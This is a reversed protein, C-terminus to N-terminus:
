GANQLSWLEKILKQKQQRIDFLLKEKQYVPDNQTYSVLSVDSYLIRNDSINIQEEYIKKDKYFPINAYNLLLSNDIMKDLMVLNKLEMNKGPDKIKVDIAKINDALSVTKKEDSTQKDNSNTAAQETQKEETSTQSEKDSGEDSSQEAQSSSSAVEETKSEQLSEKQSDSSDTVAPTAKAESNTSSNTDLSESTNTLASTSETKDIDSTPATVADTKIDTDLKVEEKITVDKLDKLDNTIITNLNILETQTAANMPPVYTYTVSLSPNNLDAAYHYNPYQPISFDYRLSVDYDQQSNSGIILQDYTTGSGSTGSVIRTQTIINGNDDVTKITQTVSQQAGSWFWYNASGTITLGENISEKNIDQSNLSVADSEIYGNHVGAVTSSGHMSNLNTGSWGKTFDQSVLNNTTEAHTNHSTTLILNILLGILLLTRLM